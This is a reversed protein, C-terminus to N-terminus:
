VDSDCLEQEQIGFFNWQEGSVSVEAGQSLLWQRFYYLIMNCGTIHFHKGSHTSSVWLGAQMGLSMLIDFKQWIAELRSEYRALYLIDM